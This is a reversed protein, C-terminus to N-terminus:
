IVFCRTIRETSGSCGCSTIGRKRCRTLTVFVPAAKPEKLFLLPKKITIEQKARSITSDNKAARANQCIM